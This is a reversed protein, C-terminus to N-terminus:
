SGGRRRDVRDRLGLVAGADLVAIPGAADSVQGTVLVAAEASLTPPVPATDAHLARRDYVGPVAEAVLGVVLDGRGVVVLRASGALPVTPTSLLPRLDLVPLMRGRWNAVGLLWAPARPIRTVPPLQAVEAVDAMDVAYRSGGLRLLVAGAAVAPGIDDAMDDAVPEAYSTM